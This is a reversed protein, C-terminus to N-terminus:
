YDTLDIGGITTDLGNSSNYILHTLRNGTENRLGSIGSSAGPHLDISPRVAPMSIIPMPIVPIDGRIPDGLARLRSKKNSYMYRNYSIAQKNDGDAPVMGMINNKCTIDSELNYFSNDFDSHQLIDLKDQRDSAKYDSKPNEQVNWYGESTNYAIYVIVAIAAIVLIVITSQRM